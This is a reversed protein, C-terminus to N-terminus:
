TSGWQENILREWAEIQQWTLQEGFDYIAHKPFTTVIKRISEVVKDDKNEM